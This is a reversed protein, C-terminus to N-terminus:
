RQGGMARTGHVEPAQPAQPPKQPGGPGPLRPAVKSGPRLQNQGDVVVLEGPSLGKAIVSVDGQTLDVEVPRPQVTQDQGIVYAFTGDPGRQVVTAPVVLANKRTTLHLRAKIFQNPWLLHQPNPFVAKLRMTATASNIQNDVVALQGTGLKTAGDRSWAEVPLPGAQMEQMVSPLNDEPLTFLMAIPDLQAIVVLGGPDSSRVLNGADVSRVGTVGDIPAVIRAYDLNLRATEIAARDIRTTGELQGVLAAQDDVLQQAILKRERLNKNREFNLQADKLQAADRALAGEAQHLQIEFPRPDIQAIVQGRKVAQGERFLVADLRGDVQARVTITKFASVNGLGDLYIPLDRQAVQAASVPIVRAGGGPGSSQATSGASRGQGRHRQYWWAGLALVVLAAVILGWRRM